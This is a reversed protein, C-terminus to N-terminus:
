ANAHVSSTQLMKHCRLLERIGQDLTRKPKFGRKEIKANSVIYNRKDPDHGVAAFHLYLRPIYKKIALALEEKSLNADSLGVNYIENRMKAYNKLCYLFCDAIDEIHIYNRKFDKEFIVLFGDRAARYTFDNVLLDLRLRPSVGFVTALRLSIANGQRMIKQEIRVKTQGYLSIPRLPTKETCYMEGTTTGYGSNTTPFILGQKQSRNKLILDIADENITKADAPHQECARAGVIAALPLIFDAKGLLEKVLGGDRADGYVFQFNEYRCCEILSQQQYRLNDLATVHYGDQLLRRVLVSGIYGAGGTVLIRIKQAKAM